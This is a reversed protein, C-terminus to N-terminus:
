PRRLLIGRLVDEYRDNITFEAISVNDSVANACAALSYVAPNSHIYKANLAVLLIQERPM